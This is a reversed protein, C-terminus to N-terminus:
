IREKINKEAEDAMAKIIEDGDEDITPRIFAKGQWKSSGFEVYFGYEADFVMNAGREPIAEVRGSQRLYGTKVAVREQSGKLLVYAGATAVRERDLGKLGDFQSLLEKLGKIESM